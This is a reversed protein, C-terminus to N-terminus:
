GDAPGQFALELIPKLIETFISYGKKNLHIGDGMYIGKRPKGDEAFMAQVVDVYQLSPYSACYEQILQNALRIEPWFNRRGPSCKLSLFYIPLGPDAAHLETCFLQFDDFVEVPTRVRSFLAGVLDNEGAYLIVARPHYPLVLRPLYYTIQHIQSGAIGRNLVPLPAFDKELTRWYRIISSGTFLFPHLPPPRRRDEQEYREVVDGWIGRDINSQKRPNKANKADPLKM